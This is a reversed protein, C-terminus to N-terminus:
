PEGDKSFVADSLFVQELYYVLYVSIQFSKRQALSFVLSTKVLFNCFVFNEFTFFM